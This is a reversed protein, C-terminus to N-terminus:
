RDRLGVACARAVLLERLSPRGDFEGRSHRRTVACRAVHQEAEILHAIVLVYSAQGGRLWSAAVTAAVEVGAAPNMTLTLTPGRLKWRICPLGALVGPNAGAFRLPSVVGNGATSAIQRMSPGTCVDSVAVVGVEDPQSLFEESSNAIAEAVAATVLWGVSDAYFSPRNGSLAAPNAAAVTGSAIVTLRGRSDCATM